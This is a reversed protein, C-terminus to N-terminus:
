LTVFCALLLTIENQQFTVCKKWHAQTSLSWDTLNQPVKTPNLDKFNEELNGSENALLWELQPSPSVFSQTVLLDMHEAIANTPLLQQESVVAIWPWLWWTLKQWAVIIAKGGYFISWCSFFAYLEYAIVFYLGCLRISKPDLPFRYEESIAREFNM